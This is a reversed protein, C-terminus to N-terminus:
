KGQSEDFSVKIILKGENAPEVDVVYYSNSKNSRVSNFDQAQSATSLQGDKSELENLNSENKM